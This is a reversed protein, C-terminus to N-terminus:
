YRWTVPCRCTIRDEAILEHLNPMLARAPVVSEPALKARGALEPDVGLFVEQWRVGDLAVLVVHHNEVLKRDAHQRVASEMQHLSWTPAVAPEHRCAAVTALLACSAVLSTRHLWRLSLKILASRAM